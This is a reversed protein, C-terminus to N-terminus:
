RVESTNKGEVTEEEVEDQTSFDSSWKCNDCQWYGDPSLWCTEGCQQCNGSDTALRPDAFHDILFRYDKATKFEPNTCARQNFPCNMCPLVCRGPYYSSPPEIKGPLWKLGAVNGIIPEGREARCWDCDCSGAQCPRGHYDVETPITCPPAQSENATTSVNEMTIAEKKLIGARGNARRPRNPKRHPRSM